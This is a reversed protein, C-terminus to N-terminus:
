SPIKPMFLEVLYLLNPVIDKFVPNSKVKWKKSIIAILCQIHIEDHETKDGLLQAGRGEALFAKGKQTTFEYIWCDPSKHWRYFLHMNAHQTMETTVQKKHGMSKLGGREETWPIRWALISSHTAM